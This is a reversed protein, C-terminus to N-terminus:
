KLKCYIPLLSIISNEKFKTLASTQRLSLPRLFRYSM